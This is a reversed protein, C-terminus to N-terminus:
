IGIAGRNPSSVFLSNAEKDSPNLPLPVEGERPLFVMRFAQNSHPLPYPTPKVKKIKYKRGLDFNEGVADRSKRLM